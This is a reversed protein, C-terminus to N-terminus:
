LYCILLQPASQFEGLSALVCGNHGAWRGNKKTEIEIYRAHVWPYTIGLISITILM